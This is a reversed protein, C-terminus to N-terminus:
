GFGDFPHEMRRSIVAESLRSAKVHRKQAAASASSGTQAVTGQPVILLVFIISTLARLVIKEKKHCNLVSHLSLSALGQRSNIRHVFCVSDAIREM